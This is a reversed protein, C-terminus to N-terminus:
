DDKLRETAIKICKDCIHHTESSVMKKAVSKKTGCFSCKPDVEPSKKFPIVNSM